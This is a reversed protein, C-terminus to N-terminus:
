KRIINKVEAIKSSYKWRKSNYIDALENRTNNYERHLATVENLLKSREIEISDYANVKEQMSKIKNRQISLINEVFNFNNHSLESFMQGVTPAKMPFVFNDGVKTMGKKSAICIISNIFINKPNRSYTNGKLDEYFFELSEYNPFDKETIGTLIHYPNGKKENYPVNICLRKTFNDAQIVNLGDEIHELVHRTLIYEFPKSKQLFEKADCIEYSIKKNYYNDKAWSLLDESVDISKVSAVQDINAYMFSAYGTGFGLDLLSINKLNLQEADKTIIKKFFSHSSLHRITESDDHSLFPILREGENCIDESSYSKRVM